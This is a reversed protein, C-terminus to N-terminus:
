NVLDILEIQYLLTLSGKIKVFGLREYYDALAQDKAEIMAFCVGSMKSIKKITQLANLLLKKSLNQRQYNLDVGMKGILVIPINKPYGKIKLETNDLLSNSLTYFGAITLDDDQLIHVKAM